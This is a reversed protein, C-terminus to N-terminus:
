EAAVENKKPIGSGVYTHLIEYTHPM